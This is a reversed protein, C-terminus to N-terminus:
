RWAGLVGGMATMTVIWYGANVATLKWSRQEFRDNVVFAMTIWGLGTLMGYFAGQQSPNHFGEMSATAPSHIFSALCFSMIVLAVFATGFTQAPNGSNIQEETLGAERMWVKGLLLPTYWVGGIVFGLVAAAVVALWNLGEGEM